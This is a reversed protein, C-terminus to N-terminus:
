ARRAHMGSVAYPAYAMRFPETCWKNDAGEAAVVRADMLPAVQSLGTAVPGGQVCLRTKAAFQVEWGLLAAACRDSYAGMPDDYGCTPLQAFATSNLAYEGWYSNVWNRPSICLEITTGGEAGAAFCCENEISTPRNMFEAMATANSLDLTGVAEKSTTNYCTATVSGLAAADVMVDAEALTSQIKSAAEKAALAHCHLYPSSNECICPASSLGAAIARVCDTGNAQASLQSQLQAVPSDAALAALKTSADDSAFGDVLV